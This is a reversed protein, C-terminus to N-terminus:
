RVTVGKQVFESGLTIQTGLRERAHRPSRVLYVDSDDHKRILAQLEKRGEVTDKIRQDVVLKKGGIRGSEFQKALSTGRYEPPTPLRGGWVQLIFHPYDRPGASNNTLM